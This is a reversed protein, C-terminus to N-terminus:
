RGMLGGTDSVVVMMGVEDEDVFGEDDEDCRDMAVTLRTVEDDSDEETEEDVDVPVPVIMVTDFSPDESCGIM